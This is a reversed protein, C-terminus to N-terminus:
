ITYYSCITVLRYFYRDKLASTVLEFGVSLFNTMKTWSPESEGVRLTTATMGELFGMGVFDVLLIM